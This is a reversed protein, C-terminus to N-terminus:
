GGSTVTDRHAILQEVSGDSHGVFVMDAMGLFL